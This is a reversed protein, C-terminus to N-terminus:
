KSDKKTKLDNLYLKLIALDECLRNMNELSSHSLQFYKEEFINKVFNSSNELIPQLLLKIKQYSVQFEEGVKKFYEEDVIAERKQIVKMLGSVYKAQFALDSLEDFRQSSISAELILKFDDRARLPNGNLDEVASLIEEPLKDIM